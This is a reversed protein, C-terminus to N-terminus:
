IIDQVGVVSSTQFVLGILVTSRGLLAVPMIISRPECRGVAVSAIVPWVGPILLAIAAATAITVPVITAGPGVLGTVPIITLLKAVRGNELARPCPTTKIFCPPQLPVAPPLIMM